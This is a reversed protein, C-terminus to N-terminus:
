PVVGAKAAVRSNKPFLNPFLCTLIANDFL